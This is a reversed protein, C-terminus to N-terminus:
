KRVKAIATPMRTITLVSGEVTFVLVDLATVGKARLDRIRRYFRFRSAIAEKHSTYELDVGKPSELALFLPEDLPSARYPQSEPVAPAEEGGLDGLDLDLARM